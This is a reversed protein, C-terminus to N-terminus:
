RAFQDRPGAANPSEATADAVRDRGAQSSFTHDADPLDLREVRPASLVRTWEAQSGVYRLFEKATLDRGSLILLVCGPFRALGEAMARRYDPPADDARTAVAVTKALSRTSDGLRVRGTVLKHWFSLRFSDRCTTIACARRRM